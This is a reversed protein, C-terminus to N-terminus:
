WWVSALWSDFRRCIDLSVTTKREVHGGGVHHTELIWGIKSKVKNRRLSRCTSGTACPARQRWLRESSHVSGGFEDRGGLQPTLQATRAQSCVTSCLHTKHTPTRDVRRTLHWTTCRLDKPGTIKDLQAMNFIDSVRIFPRFHLLWEHLARDCCSTAVLEYLCMVMAATALKGVVSKATTPARSIGPINNQNTSTVVNWVSSTSQFQTPILSCSIVERFAECWLRQLCQPLWRWLAAINTWVTVTCSRRRLCSCANRISRWISTVGSDDRCESDLNNFSNTSNNSWQRTDGCTYWDHLGDQWHETIQENPDDLHVVFEALHDRSRHHLSSVSLRLENTLPGAAVFANINSWGNAWWTM